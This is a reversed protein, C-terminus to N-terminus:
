PVLIDLGFFFFQFMLSEVTGDKWTENQWLNM